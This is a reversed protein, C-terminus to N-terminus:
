NEETPLRNAHNDCRQCIFAMGAWVRVEARHFIGHCEGCEVHNLPHDDSGHISEDEPNPNCEKPENM